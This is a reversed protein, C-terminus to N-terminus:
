MQKNNCTAPLDQVMTSATLIVCQNEKQEGEQLFTSPSRYYEFALTSDLMYEDQIGKSHTECVKTDFPHTLPLFFSHSVTEM